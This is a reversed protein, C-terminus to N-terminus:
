FGGWYHICFGAAYSIGLLIILSDFSQILRPQADLKSTKLGALLLCLAPVGLSLVMLWLSSGAHVLPTLVLGAACLIVSCWAAKKVGITVALTRKVAQADAPADPLATAVSSSYHFLFFPILLLWPLSIFSGTQVYFGIIPLLVGCGLGQLVEGGGRYNLRLPSFSYMWLLLLGVIFLALIADLEYRLTLLLGILLILGANICGAVFLHQAPIKGEPVVRSGGSFMNFSTNQGDVERDAYDNWFVIFMQDFWGYLMVWVFLSWSFQGHAGYALAQGFLLPFILNVNSPIRAAQAWAKLNL